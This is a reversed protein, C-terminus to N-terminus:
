VFPWKHYLDARVELKERWGHAGTLRPRELRAGLQARSSAGQVANMSTPWTALARSTLGPHLAFAQTRRSLPM